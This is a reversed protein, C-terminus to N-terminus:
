CGGVGGSQGWLKTALNLVEGPLGVAYSSRSASRSIELAFAYYAAIIAISPKWIDATHHHLYIFPKPTCVTFMLLEVM